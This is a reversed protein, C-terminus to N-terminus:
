SVIEIEICPKLTIGDKALDNRVNVFEPVIHPDGIYRLEIHNIGLRFDNYNMFEIYVIQDNFEEKIDHLLNPIHIEKDRNLNEFYAKIYLLIEDRTQADSQQSLKLRWRSSLAVNGISTEEHDGITYTESYGYTNFFKFDIDMNNEVLRLCYDIYNKKSVLQNVLYAVKDENQFYHYGVVPMTYIDYRVNDGNPSSCRVIKNSMMSSFNHYFNLGGEIKYVELLSYNQLGPVITYLLHDEDEYVEDLEAAIYLYAECNNAFYGPVPNTTGIETLDTLEIKNTSDFDGSATFEVEWDTGDPFTLGPGYSYSVATCEKYRYPVNNQFIILFCKIKIGTMEKTVPDVTILGFNENISQIISFTFKYKEPNTLLKREFHNIMTSFGVYAKENSYYYNFYSNYNVISLYKSTYIPDTDLLIDHITRYYFKNASNDFYEPSFPTPIDSEPIPVAYGVARDYILTTGAPILYRGDYSHHVVDTDSIDIKINVTNTPIVNELDDKLLYYAYWVRQLQNDVKKQLQIINDDTSILNFYNNLDTETTIYGRSMAMKPILAKLEDISKRDTGNESPTACRVFCTVKKNRSYVSIFDCYIDNEETDSYVFNGDKGLTTRCLIQIESNIGPTFSNADFEIRVTNDNIYLYWCYKDMGAEIPSGYFLPTLRTKRNGDIIYVEFDALQDQFKFTYSKNDIISDTILTDMVNTLTVQHVNVTFFVYRENNFNAISPQAIHSSIINSIENPESMDYDAAYVYTDRNSPLYRRLHIDYDLHFEKDRIFISNSAQFVFQDNQMYTDLDSEKVGINVTLTAPVANIGEINCYIAHALINKNLKARTPFMENGLEGAMIVSTQIKKAETDGIFGFIGLSLTTENVDDVYRAKLKNLQDVISYIDTSIAWESSQDTNNSNSM